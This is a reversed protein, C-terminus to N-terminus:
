GHKNYYALLEKRPFAKAYYFGQGLGWHQECLFKLQSEQEIGECVIELDLSHLLSIMGKLLSVNRADNIDRIFNQDIKIASFDFKKLALISAYGTGFDDLVIAFGLEILTKINRSVHEDDEFLVVETIEVKIM